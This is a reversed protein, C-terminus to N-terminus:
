CGRKARGARGERQKSSTASILYDFSSPVEDDSTFRGVGSDLVVDVDPITMALEALSTALIIRPYPRPTLADKIAQPDLDGFLPFIVDAAVGLNILITKMKETEKEGPLFMLGTRGSELLEKACAAMTKYMADFTDIEVQYRELLYPRKPCEIIDPRLKRMTESLRDSMTATCMFIPFMRNESMRRRQNEQMLEFIFSYDMNREVAGIEDLVVADFDNLANIGDSAYWRFCLGITSFIIRADIWACGGSKKGGTRWHSAISCHRHMDEVDKAAYTLVLLKNEFDALESLMDAYREPLYKSKGCGTAGRFLTLPRRQLVASEIAPLSELVALQGKNGPVDPLRTPSPLVNDLQLM